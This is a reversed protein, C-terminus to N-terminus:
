KYTRAEVQLSVGDGRSGPARLGAEALRAAIASLVPRSTAAFFVGPDDVDFRFRHGSGALRGIASAGTGADVDIIL